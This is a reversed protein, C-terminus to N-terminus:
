RAAGEGSLSEQPVPYGIQLAAAGMLYRANPVVSQVHLLRYGTAPKSVAAGVAKGADDASIAAPTRYAM